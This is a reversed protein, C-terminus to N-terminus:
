FSYGLTLFYTFADEYDTPAGTIPDVATVRRQLPWGIDFRLPGVPSDYRFGAGVGYRLKSFDIKTDAYVNGIDAFVTGGFAGAIPFRYEANFLFLGNGGLPIVEGIYNGDDDQDRFLTQKCIDFGGESGEFDRPDLCLTGLLDLEFGRHSTDGGAVFRESLPVARYIGDKDKALPQILGARASVAFVSRETVPLYWSGQLFGKLFSTESAFLPFAYEISASTFVGRRPNLVDDRSDWFFTPTISSIQINALSRDLGPIPDTPSELSDCVTGEICDSIKYDYRLSWRTRLRAVKTAEISTGRQRIRTQARTQDDSQYVTVQVPVNWPGVFPERYTLFFEDEPGSEIVELGLFRGTGFLNRHAIAATIRPAFEDDGEDRNLVVGVSGSVTLNRGEEVSIVVNRDAVSTGAQEPQIDVRNFIGLRYLNRQAELISTYSFPDGSDLEAQRLIVDDDTYTNGRVIIEGVEVRPGEAITYVVAVSHPDGNTARVVPTVQVEANGRDAYYTQLRVQDERVLQPNLPGGTKILLEPLDDVDVQKTGEIRVDAVLTQTGENVPFTVTMTGTADNTAVVADDVTAEAFGQLRYYSELSDRDGSLQERTIGTPRRFLSSLLRRFGGSPSTAVVRKLEKDPVKLNGSFEVDALRYRPGPTVTFTTVWTDGAMASETDVTANYHGRQQYSRTIDEAARDIADESYEANARRFPLLRRVDRREVGVVGVRVKPGAEVNYRLTVSNAEADYTYDLYDVDARRHDKRLMHERMRDADRRAQDLNFNEGPERGMRDILEERTFPAPDGELIVNAIKAQPGPVIRFTVTALSRDRDFNTEPDVTAELYGDQRLREQIATASDDVANLSLVEGVRVQIGRDVRTGGPLGDFNVDGVRYVLFLSFTLNVGAPTDTADVRVDRFNGTAFLNKISEQVERVSITEGPQLTVYQGLTSIDFRADARFQITAIPRGAAAGPTVSTTPPAPALPTTTEAADNRGLTAFSSLVDDDRGWTWRGNYRRRFRADLRYEDNAERTLQLTWDRNVIWEVAQSSEHSDLYYVFVGRVDDSIRQAFSVKPGAGSSTELLGPDYSFSEAFPLLQQGLISGLSQYLLSQGLLSASAGAAGNRGTLGGLGLISFLTIDSAPPDSTITPVLRDITGTINITLDIPGAEVESIGGSVRGELSIDFYPDIRFPNQFEITGRTVTYDVNQFRVTGGENLTVEGLLIPNALTGTVDLAASGTVEAINNRVALTGPANVRLRLDVREQWGASTIPTIGRRSLLVNLLSQRFDFDRFYLARNVDVDGTIAIRDLGGSVLLNFNGEVTLGEFYRVAVETGQVTIRVRDPKLGEMTIFGGLAIRGGGLTAQVGEINIRNGTFVVRGNVDAITQPFGAFRFEADQIDAHGTVNPETLTGRASASVEFRGEAKLDPVFLQLLAAEMAGRVELNLAKDGVLNVDGTVGFTSDTSQLSVSELVVRGNRLAFRLPQAAVLPHGAVALNFTPATGEIVLASIDNLRGGLRLDVVLNGTAPIKATQPALALLRAVDTVTIRVLGDVALNEGVTGEGEITAIDAIGGRVILRGGRIAVYLSPPPTGEPLALGRITAGTLTAEVVLEPNDFTGAGTSNITITGGLLDRLTSLLGIRSLDISSSQITYDFRENTLDIEAEGRIEGAPAQVVLNTARVRGQTFRIDASALDIPEGFATGQRIVISGEGELADKPGALKIRGTLQGTVPLEGFDLFKAIDEVPFNRADIDLDLSFNGDGPRWDVDGALRLSADGRNITLGAFTVRGAEPTGTVVLNGTALGPGIELELGVAEMARQAPYGAASVAIDFRPGPGSEPFTLTGALSLTGEGLTFLAREFTLTSRPGDYNLDINADGLLVNSYMVEKGDVHAVVRPAEIPGSVTGTIRGSGGFGLLTFDNKDASRAFNVAIRDLESFDRSDITLKLNTVIDEIKLTGTASVHSHETDLELSRFTVVGNNLAFNTNGAIGVPYLADSFAVANRALRATGEGSGELIKEKNWRYTLQGTAAARLGTKEVGWDTFLQEISIGNYGLNVTMPYPEAFQSLVYNATITGGGYRAEDVDVVARNSTVTLKGRANTLDYTDASLRSSVWGGALTFDGAKGRLRSDLAFDGELPLEVKFIEQIRPLAIKSTVRLDYVAETLPDLKGSVFAEVGRGKLAISQLALVGPTYRFGGRLDVDFPVYEQLRVRVLPSNMLGAYLGEKQTVTVESSIKTAVAEIDHKRDFFSFQGNTIYLKDLEVKAYQFSRKRQETKWKPFNHNGDPLIEFWVHPDRIDVRGVDIERRLFSEVGGAIEVERVTAFYRAKGGRANAIRIDALVVRLPKGQIIRVSGITVERELKSELTAEVRARVIEAFSETGVYWWFFGLALFLVLTGGGGLWFLVRLCGWMPGRRQRQRATLHHHGPEKEKAEDM